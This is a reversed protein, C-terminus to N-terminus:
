KDIFSRQFGINQEEFLSRLGIPDDPLYPDHSVFSDYHLIRKISRSQLLPTFDAVTTDFLNVSVLNPL